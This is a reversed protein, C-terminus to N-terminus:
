GPCEHRKRTLHLGHPGRAAGLEEDIILDIDRQRQFTNTDMQAAITQRDRDDPLQQSRLTKQTYGHM